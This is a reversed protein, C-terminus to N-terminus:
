HSVWESRPLLEPELGPGLQILYCGKSSFRQGPGFSLREYDAVVQDMQMSM